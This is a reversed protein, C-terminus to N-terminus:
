TEGAAAGMPDKIIPMRDAVMREGRQAVHEGVQVEGVHLSAVFNEPPLDKLTKGEFFIPKTDFRLEGRLDRTKTKSDVFHGDTIM